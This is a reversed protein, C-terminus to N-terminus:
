KRRRRVVMAVGALLVGMSAPEPVLTLNYNYFGTEIQNQFARRAMYSDMRYLGPGLTGSDVFAGESGPLFNSNFIGNQWVIGDWFQLAVWGSKPSGASFSIEGTLTFDVTGAVTFEITLGNGPTSSDMLASGLGSASATVETDAFATMSTFQSLPGAISYSQDQDISIAGAYPQDGPLLGSTSGTFGQHESDSNLIAFDELTSNPTHTDGGAGYVGVWNLKSHRSTITQADVSPALCAFALGALAINKGKTFM